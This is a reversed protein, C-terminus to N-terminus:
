KFVDETIISYRMERKVYDIMNEYKINDKLKLKVEKAKEVFMGGSVFGQQEQDFVEFLNILSQHNKHKFSPWHPLNKRTSLRRNAELGLTKMSKQKKKLNGMASISRKIENGMKEDKQEEEDRRKTRVIRSEDSDSSSEDEKIASM